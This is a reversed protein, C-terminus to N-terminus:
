RGTRTAVRGGPSRASPGSLWAAKRRGGLRSAAVRLRGRPGTSSTSAPTASGTACHTPARTTALQELARRPRSAARSRGAPVDRRSRTAEDWVRHLDLGLVADADLVLWRREDAPLDARLIERVCVLAAPLDLDDDLAAVFRDHLARGAASLPLRQRTRAIRSAYRRAATAMGAVRRTARRTPRRRRAPRSSRRRRGRATSPPRGSRRWGARLSASRRRAGRRDVRRLLELKHGYRSTLVLYRFALPDIGEDVLETVRQFNGASKAM